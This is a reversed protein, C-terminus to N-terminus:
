RPASRNLDNAMVQLDFGEHRIRADFYVLTAVIAVIPAAVLESLIAGIAILLWAFSGGLLTGMTAPIGGLINGLLSSLIGALVSIGLVPWFRPRMLRWSRRLGQIPGLEEIAIAPAVVTFMAMVALAPLFCFIFAIGELIHVLIFGGLLAGFRKATARLAAAAQVEHGLYSGAVVRSVAGAVFTTALAGLLLTVFTTAVGALDGPQSAEAVTPDSLINMLGPAFQQRVAFASALQVPVVIAAVVVLITRANAKFLKFAGDLIDGLAMPHLPLPGTRESGAKPL